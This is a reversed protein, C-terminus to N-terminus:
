TPIHLIDSAHGKKYKLYCARFSSCLCGFPFLLIMFISYCGVRQTHTNNRKYFNFFFLLFLLTSWHLYHIYTLATVFNYLYIKITSLSFVIMKPFVSVVPLCSIALFHNTSIEPLDETTFEDDEMLSDTYEKSSSDTHFSLKRGVDINKNKKKKNQFM